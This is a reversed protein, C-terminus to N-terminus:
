IILRKTHNVFKKQECDLRPYLRNYLRTSCLTYLAPLTCFNSPLKWNTRRRKKTSWKKLLIRRRTEPTCNDQKTVENLIQRIMEKTTDLACPFAIARLHCTGPGPRSRLVVDLPVVQLFVQHVARVPLFLFFPRLCVLSGLFLRRVSLDDLVAEDEEVSAVEEECGLTPAESVVDPLPDLPHTSLFNTSSSSLGALSKSPSSCITSSIPKGSAVDSMMCGPFLVASSSSSSGTFLVVLSSWKLTAEPTSTSNSMEFSNGGGRTAFTAIIIPTRARFERSEAASSGTVPWAHSRSSALIRSFKFDSMELLLDRSSTKLGGHM